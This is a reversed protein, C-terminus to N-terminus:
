ASTMSPTTPKREPSVCSWGPRARGLAHALRRGVLAELLGRAVPVPEERDAMEGVPLRRVPAVDSRHVDDPERDVAVLCGDLDERQTVPLHDVAVPEVELVDGALVRLRDELREDELVVAPRRAHRGLNEDRGPDGVDLRERLEELSRRPERTTTRVGSRPSFRRRTSSAASFAWSASSASAATRSAARELRMAASSSSRSTSFRSLRGTRMSHKSTEFMWPSDITADM